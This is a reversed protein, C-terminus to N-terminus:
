FIENELAYKVLGATNKAGIKQLLNRRHADVTRVSIFLEDAIEQNTYEDVILRLVDKERDTIQIHLDGAKKKLVPNVMDNLITKTAEESFYHHGSHITKIAKILEEKSSTKLIYGSAGAEIMKRIHEDGAAMTLALVKVKFFNKKILFTAEIGDLVPMNIDMIVIDPSMNKVLEVAEKGNSAEGIIKFDIEDSILSKIGHRVIKHDDVIIINIKEM